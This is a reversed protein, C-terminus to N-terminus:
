VVGGSEPEAEIEPEPWDFPTIKGLPTFTPLNPDEDGPWEDYAGMTLARLFIDWRSLEAQQEQADRQYKLNETDLHIVAERYKDEQKLDTEAMALSREDLQKKLDRDADRWSQEVNIGLKQYDIARSELLRDLRAQNIEFEREVDRMAQNSALMDEQLVTQQARDLAAKAVAFNNADTQYQTQFSQDTTQLATQQVRDLENQSRDLAAQETTWEQSNEQLFKQQTRDLNAQATGHKLAVKQYEEQQAQDASQLATQQARELRAQNIEYEREVDRFAQNAEITGEQLATQQARDLKAESDTFAQDAQQVLLQHEESSTQLANQFVRDINLQERDLTAQAGAFQQTSTQIGMQHLRESQRDGYEATFEDRQLALQERSLGSTQAFQERQWNLSSDFQEQQATQRAEELELSRGETKAQQQLQQARLGIEAESIAETVDLSRGETKAQQQLRNVELQLSEGSLGFERGFESERQGLQEGFQGAQQELSAYKYAEERDMGLGQLQLAREDLGTSVDFQRQAEGFQAQQLGIQAGTARDAAFTSAMERNLDFLRRQRETELNGLMEQMSWSEISSGVTGRQAHHEGLRVEAERGAREIDKGIIDTAQRVMPIDWRSVQKEGFPTLDPEPLGTVASPDPATDLAPPPITVDDVLDRTPSPSTVGGALDLASPPKITPLDTNIPM